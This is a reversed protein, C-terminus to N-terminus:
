RIINVVVVVAGLIKKRNSEEEKGERFLGKCTPIPHPCSNEKGGRKLGKSQNYM